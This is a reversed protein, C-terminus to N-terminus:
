RWKIDHRGFSRLSRCDFCSGGLHPTFDLRHRIPQTPGNAFSAFKGLDLFNDFLPLNVCNTLLPSTGVPALAVGLFRRSKQQHPWSAGTSTSKTLYIFTM